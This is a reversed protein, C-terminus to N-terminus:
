RFVCFDWCTNFLVMWYKHACLNHQGISLSSGFRMGLRGFGILALSPVFHKFWVCGMGGLVCFANWNHTSWFEGFGGPCLICRMLKSCILGIGSLVCFAGWSSCVLGIRNLFHKEVNALRVWGMGTLVCFKIVHTTWIGRALLSLFAYWLHASLLIHPCLIDWYTNVLGHWCPCMSCSLMNSCDMWIRRPCLNWSLM